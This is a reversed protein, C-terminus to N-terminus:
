VPISFCSASNKNDLPLHYLLIKKEPIKTGKIWVRKYERPEGSYGGGSFRNRILQPRTIAMVGMVSM